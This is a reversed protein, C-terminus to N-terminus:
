VLCVLGCKYIKFTLNQNCNKLRKNENEILKEFQKKNPEFGTINCKTNKLLEDIFKQKESDGAGIDCLEISNKIKIFNM